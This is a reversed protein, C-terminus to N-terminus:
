WAVFLVSSIWYTALIAQKPRFAFSAKALPSNPPKKLEQAPGPVIRCRKRMTPGIPKM